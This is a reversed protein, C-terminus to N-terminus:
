ESRFRVSSEPSLSWGKLQKMREAMVDEEAEVLLARPDDGEVITLKPDARLFECDQEPTKVDAHCRLVFRRVHSM